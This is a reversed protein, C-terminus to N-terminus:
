YVGNAPIKDPQFGRKRKQNHYDNRCRLNM